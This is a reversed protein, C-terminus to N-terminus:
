KFVSRLKLLDHMANALNDKYDDGYDDYGWVRDIIIESLSKIASDIDKKISEIIEDAETTVSM